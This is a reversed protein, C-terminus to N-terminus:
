LERLFKAPNGGWIQNPPVDKVVISGAAIISNEGIRVGKLVITNMGLFVNNEIHVPKSGINEKSYRRNDAGLPHFDTDSVFANAGFMVNDGIVVETQVCIGGGSIGVNNGIILKANKNLLRIMVPHAVGPESFYSESILRLGKGITVQAGKPIFVLPIGFINVKNGLKRRYQFNFIANELVLFIKRIGWIKYRLNM